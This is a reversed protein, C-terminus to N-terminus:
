QLCPQSSVALTANWVSPKSDLQDGLSDQLSYSHFPCLRVLDARWSQLLEHLQGAKSLLKCNMKVRMKTKGTINENPSPHFSAALDAAYKQLAEALPTSIASQGGGDTTVHIHMLLRQVEM